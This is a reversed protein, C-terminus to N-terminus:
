RWLYGSQPRFVKLQQAKQQAIVKWFEPVGIGGNWHPVPVFFDHGSNLM